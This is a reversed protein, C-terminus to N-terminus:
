NIWGAIAGLVVAALYSYIDPNLLYYTRFSYLHLYSYSTPNKKSLFRTYNADFMDHLHSHKVNMCHPRLCSFAHVFAMMATKILQRLLTM